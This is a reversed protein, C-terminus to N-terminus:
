KIIQYEIKTTTKLDKDVITKIEKIENKNLTTGIYTELEITKEQNNEKYTIISKIKNIYIEEESINEINSTITTKNNEYNAKIDKIKINDITQETLLINNTIEVNQLQDYTIKTEEKQTEKDKCGTLTLSLIITLIITLKKM